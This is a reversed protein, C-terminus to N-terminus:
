FKFVAWNDQIYQVVKKIRDQNKTLGDGEDVDMAKTIEWVGKMMEQDDFIEIIKKKYEAPANKAFYEIQKESLGAFVSDIYFGNKDILLIEEVSKRSVLLSVKKRDALLDVDFSLHPYQINELIDFEEITDLNNQM